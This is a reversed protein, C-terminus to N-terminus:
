AEVEKELEERAAEEWERRTRTDYNVALDIVKVRGAEVRFFVHLVNSGRAPAGCAEFLGDGLLPWSINETSPITQSQHREQYKVRSTGLDSFQRVWSRNPKGGYMVVGPRPTQWRVVQADAHLLLWDQATTPEDNM